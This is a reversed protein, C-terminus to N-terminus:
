SKLLFSITSRVSAAALKTSNMAANFAGTFYNKSIASSIAAFEVCLWFAAAGTEQPPLRDYEKFAAPGTLDALVQPCKRRIRANRPGQGYDSFYNESGTIIGMDGGDKSIFTLRV